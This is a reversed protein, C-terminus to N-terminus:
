RFGLTPATKRRRANLRRIARSAREHQDSSKQLIEALPGSQQQDGFIHCAVALYSGLATLAESVEHLLAADDECCEIPPRGRDQAQNTTVRKREEPRHPRGRGAGPTNSCLNAVTKYCRSGPGSLQDLDHNTDIRSPM